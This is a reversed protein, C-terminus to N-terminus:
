FKSKSVGVNELFDGALYNVTFFPTRPPFISTQIV